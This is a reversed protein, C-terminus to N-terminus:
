SLIEIVVEVYENTALVVSVSSLVDENQINNGPKITTYNAVFGGEEPGNFDGVRFLVYMYNSLSIHPQPITDGCLQRFFTNFSVINTIILFYKKESVYIELLTFSWIELLHIVSWHLAGM